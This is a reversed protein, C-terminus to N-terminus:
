GSVIFSCNLGDNLFILLLFHNLEERKGVLVWATSSTSEEGERNYGGENHRGKTLLVSIPASQDQPGLYEHRHHMEPSPSRSRLRDQSRSRM